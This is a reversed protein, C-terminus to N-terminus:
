KSYKKLSIEIKIYFGISDVWFVLLKSIVRFDSIKPGYHHICDDSFINKVM